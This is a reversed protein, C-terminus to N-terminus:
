LYILCELDIRLSALNLMRLNRLILQKLERLNLILQHKDDSSEM